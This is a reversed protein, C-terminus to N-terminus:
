SDMVISGGGSAGAAACVGKIICARLAVVAEDGAGVAVGYCLELVSDEIAVQADGHAMVAAAAQNHAAVGMGGAKCERLTTTSEGGTTIVVGGIARLQCSHFDWCSGGGLIAVTADWGDQFYPMLSGQLSEKVWADGEFGPAGGMASHVATLWVPDVPKSGNHFLTVHQQTGWSGPAMEWQGLLRAGLPVKAGNPLIVFDSSRQGEVRVIREGELEVRRVQCLGRWRYTGVAVMIKEGDRLVQVAAPVNIRSASSVTVVRPEAHALFALTDNVPRWLAADREAGLPASLRAHLPAERKRAVALDLEDLLAVIPSPEWAYPERPARPAARVPEYKRLIDDFRELRRNEGGSPMAAEARRRASPDTPATDKSDGSVDEEYDNDEEDEDEGSGGEEAELEMYDELNDRPARITKRGVKVGGRERARAPLSPEEKEEEEEEDEDEEREEKDEMAAEEGNSAPAADRGITDGPLSSSTGADMQQLEGSSSGGRLAILRGLGCRRSLGREIALEAAVDSGGSRISLDGNRERESDATLSRALLCSSGPSAARLSLMKSGMSSGEGVLAAHIAWVLLIGRRACRM